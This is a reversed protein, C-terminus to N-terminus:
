AVSKARRGFVNFKVIAVKSGAIERRHRRPRKRRLRSRRSNSVGLRNIQRDPCGALERVNVSRKRGGHKAPPIMPEVIAWEADTLDSPYRLGNRNATRRHEPTWM